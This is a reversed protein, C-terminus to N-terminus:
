LPLRITYWSIRRQSRDWERKAQPYPKLNLGFSSLMDVNALIMGNSKHAVASCTSRLAQATISNTSINTKKKRNNDDDDDNNNNNNDDDDDNNNNDHQTTNNSNSNRWRYESSGM